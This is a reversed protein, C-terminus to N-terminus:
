NETPVPGWFRSDYSNDRNDGMVFVHGAPVTFTNNVAFAREHREAPDPAERTRLTLYHYDGHWEVFLRQSPGPLGHAGRGDGDDGQWTGVECRPLMQGNVEVNGDAYVRVRDGPLGIVRKIFDKSPDVP